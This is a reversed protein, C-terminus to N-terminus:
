GDSGPAPRPEEGLLFLINRAFACSGALLLVLAGFPLTSKIIWRMPLGMAARSREDTAFSMLALESGYVVVVLCFPVLAVIYGIVEIIAKTRDTARDRFVDIRVHIDRIYAYGISTMVLTLFLHWELGQLRTSGTNYFQRGIIDYVSIGILLPLVILVPLSCSWAVAAELRGILYRWRSATM